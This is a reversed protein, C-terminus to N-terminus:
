LPPQGDLLFPHLINDCREYGYVVQLLVYLEVIDYLM